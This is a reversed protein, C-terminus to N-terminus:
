IMNKDLGEALKMLPVARGMSAPKVKGAGGGKGCDQVVYGASASLQSTLFLRGDTVTNVIRSIAIYWTSVPLDIYKM